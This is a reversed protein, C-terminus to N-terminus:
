VIACTPPNRRLPVQMRKYAYTTVPGPSTLSSLFKMDRYYEDVSPVEYVATGDSSVVQYVGRLQKISHGSAQPIECTFPNFEPAARRFHGPGSRPRRPTGAPSDLAADAQCLWV